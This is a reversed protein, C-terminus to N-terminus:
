PSPRSVDGLGAERARIAAQSRYAVQLKRFINCVHSQVTNLSLFLGTSSENNGHGTSILRLIEPHEQRM